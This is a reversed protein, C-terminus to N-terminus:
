DTGQREKALLKRKREIGWRYGSLSGDLRVVRHCPIVVAIKNTACARAVARASTPKGIASALESYSVTVGAPIDQLARWVKAQFISGQIDLPLDFKDRPDDIYGIVQAVMQEFAPDAGLLEARPFLDQLERLLPEPADGLSISCIGKDTTAVLVSGLECEGVAFKIVTNSGAKRYQTPTMGLMQNGESYFRSNSSFGSAYIAETITTSKILEDHVLQARVTKAYAKPTTGTYSKFLRQFYSRSIALEKALSDVNLFGEVNEISRCAQTILALNKQRLSLEDPKCRKCPMAGFQRAEQASNHFAVNERNPRRSPCSPRCYIGTTVVSYFFVDDADANRAVVAAWRDDETDFQRSEGFPLETSATEDLRM